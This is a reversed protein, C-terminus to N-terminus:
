YPRRHLFKYWITRPAFVSKNAASIIYPPAPVSPLPVQPKVVPLVEELNARVARFVEECVVLEVARVVVSTHIHPSISVLEVVVVCVEALVVCM